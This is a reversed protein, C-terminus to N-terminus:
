SDSFITVLKRITPKDLKLKELIPKLKKKSQLERLTSNSLNFCCNCSYARFLAQITAYSQINYNDILFNDSDEFIQCSYIFYCHHTPINTKLEVKKLFDQYTDNSYLDISYNKSNIYVFVQM